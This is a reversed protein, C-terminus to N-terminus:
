RRIIETTCPVAEQITNRVPCRTEIYHIFREIEQPTNEAKVFVKTHISKFILPVCDEVKPMAGIEGEMEFVISKLQINMKEAYIWANICKCAGLSSLLAEVPNMAQDTGGHDIPEDLLMQHGAAECRMRYKEDQEVRAKFVTM